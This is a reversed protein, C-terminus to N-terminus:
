TVNLFREGKNKLDRVFPKFVLKTSKAWCTSKTIKFIYLFTNQHEFIYFTATFKAENKYGFSSLRRLNLSCCQRNQTEAIGSNENVQSHKWVAGHLVFDGLCSRSLLLVHKWGQGLATRSCPAAPRSSEGSVRSTTGRASSGKRSIGRPLLWRESGAKLAWNGASM